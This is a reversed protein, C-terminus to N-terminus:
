PWAARPRGPLVWVGGGGPWAVGRPRLEPPHWGPARPGGRRHSWSLLHPVPPVPAVCLPSRLPYTRVGLGIWLHHPRPPQRCSAPESRPTGPTGAPSPACPGTHVPHTLVSCAPPRAPSAEATGQTQALAVLHRLGPVHDPAPASGGRGRVPPHWQQACRHWSSPLSTGHGSRSGRPPPVRPLVRHTNSPSPPWRASRHQGAWSGGTRCGWPQAPDPETPVARGPTPRGPTSAGPATSGPAEALGAGRRAGREQQWCGSSGLAGLM